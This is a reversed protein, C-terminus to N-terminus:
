HFFSVPCQPLKRAEQVGQLRRKKLSPLEASPEELVCPKGQGCRRLSPYYRGTGGCKSDLSVAQCGPQGQEPLCWAM